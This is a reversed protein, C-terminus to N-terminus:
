GEGKLRAIEKTFNKRIKLIEKEFTACVRLCLRERPEDYMDISRYISCIADIDKLVMKELDQRDRKSLQNPFKEDPNPM